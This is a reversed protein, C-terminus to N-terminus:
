KQQDYFERNVHSSKKRLSLLRYEMLEPSVIDNRLQEVLSDKIWKSSFAEHPNNKLQEDMLMVFDNITLQEEDNEQLYEWWMISRLQEILM